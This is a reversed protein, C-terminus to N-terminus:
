RLSALDKRVAEVAALRVEERGDPSFLGLEEIRQRIEVRHKGSTTAYNSTLAVSARYPEVVAWVTAPAILEVATATQVAERQADALRTSLSGGLTLRGNALSELHNHSRFMEIYADRRLVYSRDRSAAKTAARQRRSESLGGVWTGGIAAVAAVAASVVPTYEIALIM